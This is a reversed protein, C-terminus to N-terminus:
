ISDVIHNIVIIMLVIYILVFITMKAFDLLNISDFNNKVYFMIITVSVLLASIALFLITIKLITRSLSTTSNEWAIVNSNQAPEILLTVGSTKFQECVETARDGTWTTKIGSDTTYTVKNKTTCDGLNTVVVVSVDNSLNSAIHKETLSSQAFWPLDLGTFNKNKITINM